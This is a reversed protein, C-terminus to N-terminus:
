ALVEQGAIQDLYVAFGIAQPKGFRQALLDYRGGSLVSQHTGQVYGKFVIGNYYDLDSIISFDIRVAESDPLSAFATELDRCADEMETNLCLGKLVPLAEAPKAYLRILAEWANSVETYQKATAFIENLKHPSKQGLCKLLQKKGYEDMKTEQLLGRIMGVSAVDMLVDPSIMRLSELALNLVEAESQPTVKGIIEVGCQPIESFEGLSGCDRYVNEHYFVKQVGDRSNKLISMTVDPKLALLRGDTDTFTLIRSQGFYSRFDAYLDYPEFRSMKYFTFGNQRYLVRLAYAIREERTMVEDPIMM